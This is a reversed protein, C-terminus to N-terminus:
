FGISGACAEACPIQEFAVCYEGGYDRCKIVIAQCAGATYFGCFDNQKYNLTNQAFATNCFLGLAFLLTSILLMKKM